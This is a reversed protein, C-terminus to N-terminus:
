VDNHGSSSQKLHNWNQSIEDPSHDTQHISKKENNSEKFDDKCDCSPWRSVTDPAISSSAISLIVDFVLKVEEITM